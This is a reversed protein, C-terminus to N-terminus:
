TADIFIQKDNTECFKVADKVVRMYLPYLQNYVEAENTLTVMKFEQAIINGEDIVETMEHATVDAYSEGWKIAQKIPKAGKFKIFYPHVNVAYRVKRLLEIPVIERGHVCLLMRSNSVDTIFREDNISDYVRPGLGEYLDKNDYAVVSVIEHGRIVLTSFLGATNGVMLCIKM